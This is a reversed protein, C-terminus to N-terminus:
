SRYGFESVWLGFAGRPPVLPHGVLDMFDRRLDALDPGTMVYWRLQDGWMQVRWPDGTFDWRQKYVQDLFLAYNNTGEGVAYLIPIQTNGVMGGGPNAFPVMANGDIGLSTNRPIGNADIDATVGPFRVRGVWDGESLGSAVFQQGLGYANRTAEKTLTMGKWDREIDLPCQTTLRFGRLKDTTTVCLSQPDVDIRLEPTEITSDHQDIQTPGPYDHKAIMPSTWIPATVDPGPGIASLEFHALDDRLVEVVLYRGGSTLKFRRVNSGTDDCKGACTEIENSTSASDM